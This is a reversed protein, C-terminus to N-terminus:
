SICVSLLKEVREINRVFASRGLCYENQNESLWKEMLFFQELQGSTHLFYVKKVTECCVAPKFIYNIIEFINPGKFFIRRNAIITSKLIFFYLNSVSFCRDIQFFLKPTTIGVIVEYLFEM